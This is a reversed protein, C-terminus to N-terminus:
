KLLCSTQAGRSPPLMERFKPMAGPVWIQVTYFSLSFLLRTGQEKVKWTVWCEWVQHFPPRGRRSEGPVLLETDLWAISQGLTPIGHEGLLVASCGKARCRQLCGDQELVLSGCECAWSWRYVCASLGLFVTAGSVLVWAPLHLCAPFSPSATFWCYPSRAPQRIAHQAHLGGSHKLGTTKASNQKSDLAWFSLQVVVVLSIQDEKYKGYSQFPNTQGTQPYQQHTVACPPLYGLSHGIAVHDCSWAVAPDKRILTYSWPVYLQGCILFIFAHWLYASKWGLKCCVPKGACDTGQSSVTNM